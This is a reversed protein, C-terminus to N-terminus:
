NAFEAVSDVVIIQDQDQDQKQARWKMFFFRSKDAACFFVHYKKKTQEDCTSLVNRGRGPFFFVGPCRLADNYRLHKCRLM